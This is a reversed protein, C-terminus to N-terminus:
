VQTVLALAKGITDAVDFDEDEGEEGDESDFGLGELENNLAAVDVKDDESTANALTAKVKNLLTSSSTPSVGEVFHKAALHLAHEM